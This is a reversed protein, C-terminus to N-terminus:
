STFDTYWRLNDNTYFSRDYPMSSKTIFTSSTYPNTPWYTRADVLTSSTDWSSEWTFGYNNWRQFYKGRNANTLTDWDNWVVTAGVNKDQITIYQNTWVLISILWLDSNYWVKGTVTETRTEDPIIPTDRFWRISGGLARNTIQLASVNSSVLGLSRIYKGDAPTVSWLYTHTWWRIWWGDDYNRFGALPVHLIERFQAATIWVDTIAWWEEQLPVHFGGDCPWRLLTYDWPILPQWEEGPSNTYVYIAM